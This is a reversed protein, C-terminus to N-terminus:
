APNDLCQRVKTHPSGTLLSRLDDFHQPQVFVAVPINLNAATTTVSLATPGALTEEQPLLNPNLRVGCFGEATVLKTIESAALEPGSSTNALAMGVFKDPHAKLVHSVYSHDFKYNIPQVIVARDVDAAKMNEM